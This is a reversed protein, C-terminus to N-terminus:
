KSDKELASVTKPPGTSAFMIDLPPKDGPRTRGSGKLYLIGIGDRFDANMNPYWNDETGPESVLVPESWSEGDFRQLYLEGYTNRLDKKDEFLTKGFLVYMYAPQHSTDLSLLVTFTKFLQLQVPESWDNTGYPKKANRYFLDGDGDVYALHIIKATEDFAACMRRDTGAWTSMGTALETEKSNWKEGDFLNGYLRGIGDVTMMAFAYCKGDELTLNEHATSGIKKWSDKDGEIPKDSRRNIYRVDPAWESIDNPRKSRKW